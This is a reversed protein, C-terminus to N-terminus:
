DGRLDLRMRVAHRGPSYYDKLVRATEFGFTTYWDILQRNRRDAELSLATRGDARAAEEAQGVLRRGVGDRRFAPLVALSYIRVTRPHVRLVMAGVAQTGDPTPLEALWVSQFSSTLSHKLSRRSARRSGRFCRTEIREMASLDAASAARIVLPKM